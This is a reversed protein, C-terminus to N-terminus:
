CPFPKKSVSTEVRVYLRETSAEDWNIATKEILQFFFSFRAHNTQLEMGPGVRCMVLELDVITIVFTLCM